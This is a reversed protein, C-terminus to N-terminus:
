YTDVLQCVITNSVCGDMCVDESIPCDEEGLIRMNSIEMLYRKSCSEVLLGNAYIGYNMYYDNNELAIHYINYVGAINYPETKEDVWAMLRCHNDTVFLRGLSAITQRAQKYTITPVLISHCGTIYLDEFLEPYKERSCKYLRSAVRDNNNPNYMPSTGIMHIPMYGNCITKVLDGKRLTEIRRYVEQCNEFCLIQSGELFCPYPGNVDVGVSPSSLTGLSDQVVVNFANWLGASGPVPTWYANNSPDITKNTSANWPTATEQTAGISLSGSSVSDVIFVSTLESDVSANGNTVLDTYSIVVVAFSTARSNFPTISTLTPFTMSSISTFLPLITYENTVNLYYKGVSPTEISTFASGGITPLIPTKAFYVLNLNICSQFASIGIYIVSNSIIASTLSICNQFAYDSITTVSSPIAYSTRTNGIPYQILTTKTKNFLVGSTDNSYYVNSVNVVFTNISACNQFAYDSITIVSDPITYTTRTNGIPYQILTTQPKNFLVGYADSSYNSNSVDVVFANVSSCNQFVETGITTVSSPITVSSLVACNQFAYNSITTVSSPITYTTRTNGIPYQILTTQPKNLLVGSADSSYNSNSVDVVFASLSTCNQFAQTGITTVSSPISVSTLSTCNQFSQDGISTVSNPITVSALSVCNQFASTQISTFSVSTPLTVSALLRCGNFTALNITRVLNPITISTLSICGAFANSGITTVSSPITISAISQCDKFADNGISTVSSGISVSNLSRSNGFANFGISTVSDPIFVSILSQTNSFANNSISTVNYTVSSVSFSSLITPNPLGEDYGTVSAPNGVGPTYTYTITNFTYTALLYKYYEICDTFYIQEIDQGTSEMVWNGGYKINGTADNSAGVVVATQSTLVAYYSKWNSYQLTNCALFDINAVHFEKICRILFSVNETFSTQGEALDSEEFLVKNNMFPAIYDGGNGHFVLSIRQISYAPFKQRFLALLDDTKSTSDYIIPFTNANASDYFIQNDDVNSDILLVNAMNTTDITDNFVFPTFQDTHLQQQIYMEHNNDM